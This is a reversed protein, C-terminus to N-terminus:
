STWVKVEPNILRPHFKVPVSQECETSHKPYNSAIGVGIGVIFAVSISVVFVWWGYCMPASCQGYRVTGKSVRVDDIYGKM